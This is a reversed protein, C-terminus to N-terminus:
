LQPVKLTFTGDRTPLGLLELFTTLAKEQDMNSAPLWGILQRVDSVRYTEYGALCEALVYGIFVPSVPSAASPFKEFNTGMARLSALNERMRDFEARRKEPDAEALNRKVAEARGEEDYFMKFAFAKQIDIEGLLTVRDRDDLAGNGLAWSLLRGFQDDMQTPWPWTITGGIAKLEADSFKKEPDIWALHTFLKGKASSWGPNSAFHQQYYDPLKYQGGSAPALDDRPQKLPEGSELLRITEAVYPQHAAYSMSGSVAFWPFTGPYVQPIYVPNYTRTLYDKHEQPPIPGNVSVHLGRWAFQATYDRLTGAATLYSHVGAGITDVRFWLNDYNSYYMVVRDFGAPIRTRLREALAVVDGWSDAEDFGESIFYNLVADVVPKPNIRGHEVAVHRVWRGGAPKAGVYSLVFDCKPGTGFHSFVPVTFNPQCRRWLKEDITANMAMSLTATPNAEVYASCRLLWSMADVGQLIFVNGQRDFAMVQEYFMAAEFSFLQTFGFSSVEYGELVIDKDIRKTTETITITM